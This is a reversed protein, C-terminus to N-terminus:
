GRGQCQLFVRFTGNDALSTGDAMTRGNSAIVNTSTKFKGSGSPIVYQGSIAASVIVKCPGEIFLLFTDGTAVNATLDPDVVGDASVGDAPSGDVHTGYLNADYIANVGPALASGANKVIRAISFMGTNVKTGRLGTLPSTDELRCLEGLIRGNAEDVINVQGRLM